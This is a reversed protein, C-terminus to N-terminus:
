VIVGKPKIIKGPKITSIKAIQRFKLAEPIDTLGLREIQLKV